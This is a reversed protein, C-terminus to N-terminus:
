AVLKVSIKKKGSPLIFDADFYADLQMLPIENEKATM